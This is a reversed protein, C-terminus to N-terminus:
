GRHRHDYPPGIADESPSSPARRPSAFPQVTSRTGSPKLKFTPPLAVLRSPESSLAPRPRRPERTVGSVMPTRRAGCAHTILGVTRQAELNGATRGGVVSVSRSREFMISALRSARKKAASGRPQTHRPSPVRSGKNATHKNFRACGQMDHRVNLRARAQSHSPLPVDTASYLCQPPQNIKAPACM